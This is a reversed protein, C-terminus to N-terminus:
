DSRSQGQASTACEEALIAHYVTNAWEGKLWHNKVFEGERRLGAKALMRLCAQARSDAAASLRHLHIGEFGFRLLGQTAETGYGQGQFRQGIVMALGAHRRTEDEFWLQAYGILRDDAQSHIGLFFRFGPALRLERDQELLRLVQDEDSPEGDMYRFLAEDSMIELLDKWDGGCFRRLALRPTTIPLPLKGAKGTPDCPVVVNQLCNPCDQVMGAFDELFSMDAECHPCSCDIFQLETM